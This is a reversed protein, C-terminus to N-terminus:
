VAELRVRPLLAAVAKPGPPMTGPTMVAAASVAMALRCTDPFSRGAEDGACFAAMMADGAGVTSGVSVDLGAGRLLVGDRLFLAGEAGLSLAITGIGRAALTRLAAIRDVDREMPRGMLRALEEGNPKIMSPAAAAGARLLEGDADLYVKAGAAKLRPIWDGFLTDPCGAPGKGALVVRDGPALRALLRRLVAELTEAPVPAGAENIDTNTHEEPDMIKLYTRTEAATDVLDTEIGTEALCDRLYRGAGGGVIGCAVSGVGLTRRLTRSVNVGKGGPDVRQQQVRNVKGAAFGPIVVTKDLAPNLTVTFIM